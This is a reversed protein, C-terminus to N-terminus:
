TVRQGVTRMLRYLPTSHTLLWAMAAQANFPPTSARRAACSKALTIQGNRYHEVAQWYSQIARITRDHRYDLYANLFDYLRVVEEVNNANSAGSFSGGPHFRYAAMVKNIFRIKGHQANIVHLPFDAIRLSIFWEPFEAFLGQRFVVSCTPIFNGTRLLDEITFTRKRRFRPTVKSRESGDEYFKKVQHFCIAYDSHAELFSIQEQLKSRSTWFDDGELLAVYQGRCAHLAHVLNRNVGLNKNPSVLRIRDPHARHFEEIIERTRDTSCDDSVVIEYEFETEQALARELAQAIFQEHNYTILCVSLKM